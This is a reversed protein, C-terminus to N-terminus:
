SISRGDMMASRAYRPSLTRERFLTRHFDNVPTFGQLAAMCINLRVKVAISDIYPRPGRAVGRRRGGIWSPRIPLRM